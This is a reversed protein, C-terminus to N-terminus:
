KPPVPTRSFMTLSFKLLKVVVLGFLCPHKDARHAWFDSFLSFLPFPLSLSPFNSLCYDKNKITHVKSHWPLVSIAACRKECPILWCLYWHRSNSYNFYALRKKYTTAASFFLHKNVTFYSAQEQWNELKKKGCLVEIWSTVVTCIYTFIAKVCKKKLDM